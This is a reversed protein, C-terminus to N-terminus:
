GEKQSTAATPVPPAGIVSVPAGDQLKIQGDVVVVDQPGLGKVIEVEGPGRAGTTVPTLAAKGDVVRYVFASEGRPVIAQDPVVIAAERTGLSLVVRAFM